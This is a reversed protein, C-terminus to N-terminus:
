LENRVKLHHQGNSLISQVPQLSKRRRAGLARRELGVETALLLRDGEDLLRDDRALRVVDRL